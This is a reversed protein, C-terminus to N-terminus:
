IEIIEEYELDEDEDVEEITYDGCDYYDNMSEEDEWGDDFSYGEAVNEYSELYEYLGEQMYANVKDLNDSCFYLIEDCGAYGNTYTGKYIM